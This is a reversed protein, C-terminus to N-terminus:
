KNKIRRACLGARRHVDSGPRGKWSFNGTLGAISIVPVYFIYMIQVPLYLWLLSKRNFFSAALFLFLFDIILKVSFSVFLIEAFGKNILSLGMLTLISLNFVLVLWSSGIVFWDSYFRNKSVWRKRQNIFDSVTKPGATFVTAEKSKLYKIKEPFKKKFKIMLLIDDGSPTQENGSFGNVDLFARKTYAINAGNCMLPNRMLASAGTIGTLSLFELSQIKEFFSKENHFCVPAIIMEPKKEEYFSILTSLWSKGMRCDADTTIILEGKGQNIALNIANKKGTLNKDNHIIKLNGISSRINLIKEVTGDESCDDVVIIEFLHKPYDQASIDNLINTINGEENRAPIIISAFTSLQTRPSYFLKGKKWGFIFYAMLSVYTFCLFLLFIKIVIMM